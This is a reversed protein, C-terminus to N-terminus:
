AKDVPGSSMKWAVLWCLAAWSLGLTWGALIDSPYHVGLYVRSTGTLATLLVAVLLVFIRTRQSQILRTLLAGVTLYVVASLFAHGSPFSFSAPLLETALLDPRERAFLHKLLSSIGAASLVAMALWVAATRQKEMWLTVVVAVSLLTVVLVSGLASADRMLEEVWYPGLPDHPNAPDRFLYLLRLDIEHLEGERLEDALEIFGWVTGVIIALLVLTLFDRQHLLKKAWARM